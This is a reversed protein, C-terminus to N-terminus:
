VSRVQGSKVKDEGTRVQGSRVQDSRVYGSKVCYLRAQSQQDQGSRSRVYGSRDM